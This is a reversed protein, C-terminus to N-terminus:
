PPIIGHLGSKETCKNQGQTGATASLERRLTFCVRDLIGANALEDKPMPERWRPSLLRASSCAELSSDLPCRLARMSFGVADRAAKQNRHM